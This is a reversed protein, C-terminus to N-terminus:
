VEYTCARSRGALNAPRNSFRLLLTLALLKAAARTIVISSSSGGILVYVHYNDNIHELSDPTPCHDQCEYIRARPAKFMWPIAKKKQKSLCLFQSQLRERSAKESSYQHSHARTSWASCLHRIRCTIFAAKTMSTGPNTTGYFLFQHEDKGREACEWLSVSTM